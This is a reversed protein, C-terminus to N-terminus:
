YTSFGSLLDHIDMPLDLGRLELSNSGGGESSGQQQLHVDDIGLEPEFPTPHIISLPVSSVDASSPTDVVFSDRDGQAQHHGGYRGASLQMFALLAQSQVQAADTSNEPLMAPSYENASATSNQGLPSAFPFSDDVSSVTPRRQRGTTNDAPRGVAGNMMDGNAFTSSADTPDSYTSRPTPPPRQQQPHAAHLSPHAMAFTVKHQAQTQTQQLPEPILSTPSMQPQCTSTWSTYPRGADHSTQWGPQSAHGTGNGRTSTKKQWKNTNKKAIKTMARTVRARKAQYDNEEGGSRDSARRKAHSSEGDVESVDIGDVESENEGDPGEDDEGVGGGQSKELQAELAELNQEMATRDNWFAAGRKYTLYLVDFRSKILTATNANGTDSQDRHGRGPRPVAVYRRVLQVAAALWLTSLLFPNIYRIHEECSRNVITLINDAAEFYPLVSSSMLPMHIQGTGAHTHAGFLEYRHIMLRTLQTMVYINYIGCHLQRTSVAPPTSSSATPPAAAGSMSAFVSVPVDPTGEGFGLFQNRYQLHAPLALVFCQVCNALIELTQRAEQASSPGSPRTMKRRPSSAPATKTTRAQRDDHFRVGRPSSIVRADKMLSNIVLFWAKPSQNGSAQLAKWRRVPDLELFCSQTRTSHDDRAAAFWDTDDVPLLTEMQTWDVATPTRRITSAFVDMEWIAWWARRKEEADRWSTASSSTSTSSLSSRADVLHLNMEYALRVCMGLSRWARGHVGCTLECHTCIISAQLIALTPPDDGCDDLAQAIFRRALDLFHEPMAPPPPPPPMTRAKATANMGPLTTMTPDICDTDIGERLPLTPQHPPQSVVQGATEPLFRAAYATMAALLAHLQVPSAAAVARLKAGFSPQHFLNIAVMNAFYSQLSAHLVSESVGLARSAQQVLTSARPSPAPRPRITAMPSASFLRDARQGPSGNHGHVADGDNDPTSAEHTPHLIFSLDSINLRSNRRRRAWEDSTSGTPSATNTVGPRHNRDPTMDAQPSDTAVNGDANNVSRGNDDQRGEADSASRSSRSAWKDGRATSAHTRTRGHDSGRDSGGRHRDRRRHRQLSGIKPGPKKPRLPYECVQDTQICVLCHPLTRDCKVKRRRCLQCSIEAATRPQTPEDSETQM